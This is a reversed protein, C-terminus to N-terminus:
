SAEGERWIAEVAVPVAWQRYFSERTVPPVDLYSVPEDSEGTVACRYNYLAAILLNTAIEVAKPDPPRSMAQREAETVSPFTLIQSRM